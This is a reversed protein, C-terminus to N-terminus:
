SGVQMLLNPMSQQLQEFLSMTFTRPDISTAQGLALNSCFYKASWGARITELGDRQEDSMTTRSAISADTLWQSAASKGMGPDGTLILLREEPQRDLTPNVSPAM